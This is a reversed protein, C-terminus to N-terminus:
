IKFHSTVAAAQSLDFFLKKATGQDIYPRFRILTGGSLCETATPNREKCGLMEFAVFKSFIPKFPRSFGVKLALISQNYYGNGTSRFLSEIATM